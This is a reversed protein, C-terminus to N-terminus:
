NVAYLVGGAAIFGVLMESWAMNDSLQLFWRSSVYGDVM